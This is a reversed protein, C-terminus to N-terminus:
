SSHSPALTSLLRLRSDPDPVTFWPAARTLFDRVAAHHDYDRLARLTARQRMAELDSRGLSMARTLATALEAPSGPACTFGTEGDIVQGALGDATTTIVPAAGAAFAEMPIRGFPEARSPVVVGRLGPHRLLAPVEPTFRQIVTTSIDLERLRSALSRQYATPEATESTAAFVLHPVPTRGHRLLALADVLDDFGKYPEARGMALLFNGPLHIDPPAQHQLLHWDSACLGDPLPMLHERPVGYDRVLHDRMFSSITAVRTGATLARREWAIREADHPTHLVASSRPVLVVKDRLEPPLLEALGLFPVDFAVILLQDSTEAVDRVITAATDSSLAQFNALGGWRDQGSTDNSVPHITAGARDLLGRVRTHWPSHHEPSSSALWLPLVALRVDRPLLDVLTELFGYNAYGAGTGCGYFGDHIAVAVTPRRSM